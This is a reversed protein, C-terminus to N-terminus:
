TQTWPLGRARWGAVAGRRREQDLPGEFGDAVNYCNAFGAKTLAIAANRSRAGSRCIFLVPSNKDAGRRELEGVLGPVFDTAVEMDPYVQWQRFIATKGLAALDPVGVFQWEPQTRVDVLTASQDKVLMAYADEVSLDGAFGQVDELSM